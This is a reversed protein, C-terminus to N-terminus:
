QLLNFNVHMCVHLCAPVSMCVSANGGWGGCVCVRGGGELRGVMPMISTEYLTRTTCVYKWRKMQGETQRDKRWEIISLKVNKYCPNRCIRTGKWENRYHLAIRLNQNHTAPLQLCNQINKNWAM